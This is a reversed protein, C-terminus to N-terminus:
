RVRISFVRSYITSGGVGAPLLPDHNYTFALRVFGSSPFKMHIDFYGNKKVGVTSLTTFQGLATPSEQIQVHQRTEFNAPRADGWVEVKSRKSFSTKPMWVPLNYAFYTAKPVGTIFELGSNFAALLGASLPPDKLLYQMYSKIRGSKYSIYEAQNIYTAATAPSPYFGGGSARFNSPPRTIYGYEDNYIAFHKGSRYTRTMKDLLAGFKGLDPFTAWDAVGKGDNTPSGTNPYPHDAVGSANFLAPNQSRFRRSGKANTPCGQLRAMRGRLIRNNRDVCYLTRIFLLPKTQGFDGPYKGGQIGRAAYGGVLITDHKHGSSQLAKWGANLLGRYMNPAVSYKSGGIAQPGLNQGFNPENWITWFHVRPLVTGGLPTFTGSYRRALAKMFQGFQNDSPKWAFYPNYTKIPAKQEAWQPAGGAVILDVTIGYRAATRVATDYPVWNAAPYANPDSPNFGTPKKFSSAAPAIQSWPLFIRATNAGLQRFVQFTAASASPSTAGPDQIISIQTSSAAAASPLAAAAVATAAVGLM